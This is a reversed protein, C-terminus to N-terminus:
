NNLLIESKTALRWKLIRDFNFYSNVRKLVKINGLIKNLEQQNM